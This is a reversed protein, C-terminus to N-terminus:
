KRCPCGENGGYTKSRWRKEPTTKKNVRLFANETIIVKKPAIAIKKYPDAAAAIRPGYFVRDIGSMTM